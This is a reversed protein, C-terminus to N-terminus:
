LLRFKMGANVFAGWRDTDQVMDTWDLREV